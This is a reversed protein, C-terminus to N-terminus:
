ATAALDVKVLRTAHPLPYYPGPVRSLAGSGTVGQWRGSERTCPDKRALICCSWQGEM